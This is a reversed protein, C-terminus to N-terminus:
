KLNIIKKIVNSELSRMPEGELETRCSVDPLYRVKQTHHSLSILIWKNIYSCLQTLMLKKFSWRKGETSTDKGSKDYILHRDIISPICTHKQVRWATLQDIGKDKM